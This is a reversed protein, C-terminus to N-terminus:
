SPLEELADAYEGYTPTHKGRSALLKMTKKHLALGQAPTELGVLAYVDDHKHDEAHQREVVARLEEGTLLEGGLLFKDLAIEEALLHKLDEEDAM